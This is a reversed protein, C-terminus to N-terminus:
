IPSFGLKTGAYTTLVTGCAAAYESQGKLAVAGGCAGGACAFMSEPPITIGGSSAGDVFLQKQM